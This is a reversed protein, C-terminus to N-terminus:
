VELWILPAMLSAAILLGRWVIQRAQLKLQARVREDSVASLGEEM